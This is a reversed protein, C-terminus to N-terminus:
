PMSGGSGATPPLSPTPRMTSSPASTAPKATPWITNSGAPLPVQAVCRTASARRSTGSGSPASGCCIAMSVTLGAVADSIHQLMLGRLQGDLDEVTYRERTGSIEKFFARTTDNFTIPFGYQSIRTLGFALQNIANNPMPRSSHGGPNTVEITYDEYLKEGPRLGVFKLEIDGDPEEATKEDLGYLRLMTRALDAIRVPEGMDLLFVDGGEALAGAQLVLQAAEPITMFYRTVEPHTVTIPGGQAIQQRFLPIVSGSSGLVNGFRVSVYQTQPFEAAVGQVVLEALRKSAGMVNTPNVAKDTSIM